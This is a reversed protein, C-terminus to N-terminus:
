IEIKITRHSYRKEPSPFTMYDGYMAKLYDHYASMIFFKKGEFEIEKVEKFWRSPFPVQEIINYSYSIIQKAKSNKFLKCLWDFKQQVNSIIILKSIIFKVQNVKNCKGKDAYVVMRQFIQNIKIFYRSGYNPLKDFPYIDIFVGNHMDRNVNEEELFVTNNMRIKLHLKNYNKDTKKTQLFYKKKDIEYKAILLFKDYHIRLMGIDIDDDWPIFGNHRVAGLATGSDLFYPICYKRCIRDFEILISLETLQLKRINYNQKM